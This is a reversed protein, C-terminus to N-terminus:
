YEGEIAGNSWDHDDAFISAQGGPVEMRADDEAHRRAVISAIDDVGSRGSRANQGGALGKGGADREDAWGGRNLWTSAHPSFKPEAFVGWGIQATLGAILTAHDTKRLAKLYAPHAADRAKKRPYLRWFEDFRDIIKPPRDIAVNTAIKQETDSDADPREEANAQTRKREARWKAAREAAGDERKPQRKEWGTLNGDKDLVKGTMASIIAEVDTCDLDLAAAVDECEFGHTRGREDANASAAIMLFNFVAIVDGVRQGSKKAVVRWKPDTPMDHWLRVWSSM